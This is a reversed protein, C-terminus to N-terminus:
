KQNRKRNFLLSYVKELTRDDVHDLLQVIQGIRETRGINDELKQGRAERIRSTFEIIVVGFIVRDGTIECRKVKYVEAFKPMLGLAPTRKGREILRLYESTIGLNAAADRRSLRLNHRLSELLRGFKENDPSNPGVIM